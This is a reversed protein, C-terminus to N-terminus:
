PAPYLQLQGSITQPPRISRHHFCPLRTLVIFDPRSIDNIFLQTRAERKERMKNGTEEFKSPGCFKEAPAINALIAYPL